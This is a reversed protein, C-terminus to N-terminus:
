QAATVWGQLDILQQRTERCTGYNGAVSAVVRAATVGGATADPAASTDASEPLRGAAAANIIRVGDADVGCKAAGPTQVYRIVDNTIVKEVIKNKKVREAALQGAANIATERLAEIKKVDDRAKKEAELLTNKYEAM